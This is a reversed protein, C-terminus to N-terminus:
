MGGGGRRTDLTIEKGGRQGRGRGQVGGGWLKRSKVFSVKQWGWTCCAEVGGGRLKMMEMREAGGKVKWYRETVPVNPQGWIIVGMEGSCFTTITDTTM